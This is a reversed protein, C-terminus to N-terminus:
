YLEICGGFFNVSWMFSLFFSSWLTPAETRRLLVFYECSSVHLYLTSCLSFSLGDLSQGVQPNMQYYNGIGYVITSALFYMSFSALFPQRKLSGALAKCICLCTSAPLWQFSRLTGLLPTLSLVSPTSPTQLGMLLVFIDVVWVGMGSSGPVLGDVLSYVHCWSCIYCLIAKDLML